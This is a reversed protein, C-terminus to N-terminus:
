SASGTQKCHAVYFKNDCVSVVAEAGQGPRMPEYLVGDESEIEDGMRPQDDLTFQDAPIWWDVMVVSIEFGEEGLITATSPSPMAGTIKISETGRRYTITEGAAVPMRDRHHQAARKAFTTM